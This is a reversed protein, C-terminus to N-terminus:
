LRKLRRHLCMMQNNFSRLLQLPVVVVGTNYSFYVCNAGHFNPISGGEFNEVELGEYCESFLDRGLSHPCEINTPTDVPEFVRVVSAIKGLKKLVHRQISSM